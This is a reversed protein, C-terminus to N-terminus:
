ERVKGEAKQKFIASVKATVAEPQITEMCIHEDRLCDENKFANEQCLSCPKEPLALHAHTTDPVWLQWPSAGFLAITPTGVGLALHMIGNDITVCARARKLAGAVEPITMTGRLDRLATDRLIEEEIDASHYYQAQGEPKDGLLGVEIEQETCWDIFTKWHKTPWLKASRKGGTSILIAPPEFPPAAVPVETHHFDTEVDALRCFIEGIFNSKLIDSYKPLFEASSWVERHIAHLKGEPYPMEGRSDPTYCNGIAYRPNLMTVIPGLVGHFDCNIVLDYPGALHEREEIYAMVRRLSGQSGFVSFRSDIHPCAEEMERTREGSFYDLTCDPYKEHLGRLLPTIIVFDGISDYFLVAIHPHPRLPQGEYREM